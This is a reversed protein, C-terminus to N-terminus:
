FLCDRCRPSLPREPIRPLIFAFGILLIDCFLLAYPMLQDVKKLSVPFPIQYPVIGWNLVGKPVGRITGLVRPYRKEDTHLVELVGGDGIDLYDFTCIVQNRSDPSIKAM